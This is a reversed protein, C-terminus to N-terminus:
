GASIVAINARSSSSLVITAQATAARQPTGRVVGIRLEHRGHGRRPDPHGDLSPRGPVPVLWQLAVHGLDEAQELALERYYV